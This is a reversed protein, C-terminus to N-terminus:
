LYWGSLQLYCREEVESDTPRWWRALSVRLLTGAPLTDIPEAFGVYSIKLDHSALHYRVKGKDDERKLLAKDPIWFGVSQQPIASLASIYGGGNSTFRLFGDYLTSPGGQWVQVRNLLSQKIDKARGLHEGHSVIVDEVHPPRVESRPTFTLEWIDGVEYNTDVRQNWGGERLLRINRYTDATLGGVCVANSMHTKSVILVKM